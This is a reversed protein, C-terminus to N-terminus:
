DYAVKLPPDEEFKKIFRPPHKVNVSKQNVLSLITDLNSKDITLNGESYSEHLV